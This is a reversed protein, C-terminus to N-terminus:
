CGLFEMLTNKEEEDFTRGHMLKVHKELNDSQEFRYGMLPIILKCDLCMLTGDAQLLKNPRNADLVNHKDNMIKMVENPPIHLDHIMSRKAHIEKNIITAVKDRIKLDAIRQTQEAKERPLLEGNMLQQIVEKLFQSVNGHNEIYRILLEDSTKLQFSKASTM